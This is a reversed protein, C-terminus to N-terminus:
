VNQIYIGKLKPYRNWAYVVEQRVQADVLEGQADVVHVLTGPREADGGDGAEVRGEGFDM